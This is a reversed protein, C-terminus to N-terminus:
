LLSNVPFQTGDFSATPIRLPNEGFPSPRDVSSMGARPAPILFEGLVPVGSLDLPWRDRPRAFSGSVHRCVEFAINRGDLVKTNEYTDM